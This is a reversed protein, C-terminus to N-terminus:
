QARFASRGETNSQAAGQEAHKQLNYEPKRPLLLQLLAGTIIRPARSHIVSVKLHKQSRPTQAFCPASSGSIVQHEGGQVM